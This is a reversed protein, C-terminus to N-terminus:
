VRPNPPTEPSVLPLSSRSAFYVSSLGYTTLGILVCGGASATLLLREGIKDNGKRRLLNDVVHFAFIVLPPGVVVAYPHVIGQAAQVGCAIATAVSALVGTIPILESMKFGVFIYFSRSEFRKMAIDSM